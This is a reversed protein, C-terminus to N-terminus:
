KKLKRNYIKTFNNLIVFSQVSRIELILLHLPSSGSYSLLLALTFLQLYGFSGLNM